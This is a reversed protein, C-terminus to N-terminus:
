IISGVFYTSKVDVIKLKVYDGIRVTEKIVVPKYYDTRGIFTQNKGSETILAKYFKGIYNINKKYSIEKCLDTLIKSRQKAIETKIRGEMSKAKTFPRASYRTINTIDPKVKKLLEITQQFQEDTETPFGVIVDTSITIDPYKAKFKRIIELFNEVTYKRNMKKLIDNNASQVPLHLFKYIKSNNFGKIIPDINEMATYPNMMGVRIKYEGKIRCVYQLLEGLNSGEDLGYSSTDQATLQIEKCGHTIAHCIDQVIGEKSYSKLKGRAKSTICYSCSFLCGEAISIPAFIEEYDKPFLTKDKEIFYTKKNNIVDFIQYSYQPPLLKANPLIEKILDAQISAMCGTVIVKKNNKKFVRMRSLMKQETTDIVTCTLLIIFDAKNIDNVIEHNKELLIGKILSADSKNATCGYTELYFKM